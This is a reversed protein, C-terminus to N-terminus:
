RHPPGYPMTRPPPPVSAVPKMRARGAIVSGTIAFVTAATIFMPLIPDIMEGYSDIIMVQLVWVGVCNVTFVVSMVLLFVRTRTVGAFMRGGAVIGAIGSIFPLMTCYFFWLTGLWGTNFETMQLLGPIPAIIALISALLWALGGIRLMSRGHQPSNVKEPRSAQRGSVITGALALVTALVMLAAFWTREAYLYYFGSIVLGASAIVAAVFIGSLVRLTNRAGVSGKMMEWASAIAIVAFCLPLVGRILFDLATEWGFTYYEWPFLAPFYQYTFGTGTRIYTVFKFTVPVAAILTAVCALLWLAAGNRFTPNVDKGRDPSGGPPSQHWGQSPSVPAPQRVFRTEAPTVGWTENEPSGTVAWSEAAPRHAAASPGEVESPHPQWSPPPSATFRHDDAGDHRGSSHDNVTEM